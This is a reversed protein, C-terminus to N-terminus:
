HERAAQPADNEAPTKPRAAPVVIEPVDAEEPEGPASTNIIGHALRVERSAAGTNAIPRLNQTHQVWYLPRRQGQEFIRGVYAGVVAISMLILGTYATMLIVISPWGPETKGLSWMVVSWVAYVLTLGWLLFSAGAIARIPASSFSFLADLALRAMKKFPYKSEGAFRVDRDYQMITQNFGIAAFLGRLFRHPERFERAAEVVPRSIARFDGSDPIIETHSLKGLIRYFMSATALKFWSESDRRRRQAHVVDFGQAVLDIMEGIVEPPDQLDADIIVTMDADAYDLGATVAIQHGRNRAFRLVHVRPDSAAFRELIEPTNDTSCDDVFLWTFEVDPRQGAAATSRRYFEDLVEQENFCPVIVCM